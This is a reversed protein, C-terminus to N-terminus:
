CFWFWGCCSGSSPCTYGLRRRWCRGHLVHNLTQPSPPQLTQLKPQSPQRSPNPTKPRPDQPLTASRSTCDIVQNTAWFALQRFHSSNLIYFGSVRFGAQNVSKRAERLWGGFAEPPEPFGMWRLHLSESAAVPRTRPNPSLVNLHSSPRQTCPNPIGEVPGKNQSTNHASETSIRRKKARGWAM